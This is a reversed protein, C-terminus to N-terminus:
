QRVNFSGATDAETYPNYGFNLRQGDKLEKLSLRADTEIHKMIERHRKDMAMIDTIVTELANNEKILEPESHPAATKAREKLIAIAKIMQDRADVMDAFANVEAEALDPQGTLELAATLRKVEEALARAQKLLLLGDPESM